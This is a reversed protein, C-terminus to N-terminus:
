ELDKTIVMEIPDMRYEKAIQLWANDGAAILEVVVDQILREIQERNM